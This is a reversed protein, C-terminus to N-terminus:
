RIELDSIYFKNLFIAMTTCCNDIHYMFLFFPGVLHSPLLLLGTPRYHLLKFDNVYVMTCLIFFFTACSILDLWVPDIGKECPAFVM